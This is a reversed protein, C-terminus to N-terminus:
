SNLHNGMSRLLVLTSKLIGTQMSLHVFHISPHQKGDCHTLVHFRACFLSPPKQSTSHNAATTSRQKANLMQNRIKCVHIMCTYCFPFMLAPFNMTRIILEYAVNPLRSLHAHIKNSSKKSNLYLCCTLLYSEHLNWRRQLLNLPFNKDQIV